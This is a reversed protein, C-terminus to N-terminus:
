GDPIFGQSFRAGGAHLKESLPTTEGMQARRGAPQGM